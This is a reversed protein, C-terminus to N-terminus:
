NKTDSTVEHFEDLLKVGSKFQPADDISLDDTYVVKGTAQFKIDNGSLTMDITDNNKLTFRTEICLGTKSADLIM